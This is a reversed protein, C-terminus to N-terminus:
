EHSGVRGRRYFCTCHITPLSLFFVFSHFPFPFSLCFLFSQTISHFTNTALLLLHNLLHQTGSEIFYNSLLVASHSSCLTISFWLKIEAHLWLSMYRCMVLPLTTPFWFITNRGLTVSRYLDPQIKHLFSTPKLPIMTMCYLNLDLNSERFYIRIKVTRGKSRSGYSVFNFRKMHNLYTKGCSRVGNSVPLFFTTGCVRMPSTIPELGYVHKSIFHFTPVRSCKWAYMLKTHNVWYLHAIDTPKSFSTM